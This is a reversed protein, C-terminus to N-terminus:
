YQVKVADLVIERFIDEDIEEVIVVNDKEEKLHDLVVQGRTKGGHLEICAHFSSMKRVIRDFQLFVAMLFADCPIWHTRGPKYIKKEATMILDLLPNNEPVLTEYVWSLPTHQSAELTAEWTMIYLPCSVKELVVQAAEPDVFFNFEATRTTNGVAKHNGGMLYVEKLNDPLEPFLKLAM